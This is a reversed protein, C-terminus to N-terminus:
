PKAAPAAKKKHVARHAPAKTAKVKSEDVKEGGGSYTAGAPVLVVKARMGGEDSTYVDLINPDLM